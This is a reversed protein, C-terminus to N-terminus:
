REKGYRMNNWASLLRTKIKEGDFLDEDESDEGEKDEQSKSRLFNFGGTLLQAPSSPSKAKKPQADAAMKITIPLHHGQTM